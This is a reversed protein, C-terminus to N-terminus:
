CQSTPALLQWRGGLILGTYLWGLCLSRGAADIAQRRAAEAAMRHWGIFSWVRAAHMDHCDVGALGAGWGLWGGAGDSGVQVELLQAQAAAQQLDQLAVAAAARAAEVHWAALGAAQVRQEAAAVQAALQAAEAQLVAVQVEAQQV